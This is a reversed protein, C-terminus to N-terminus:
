SLVAVLHAILLALTIASAAVHLPLCARLVGLLVSQARLSRLEAVTLLLQELGDLRAGGRGQLMRHVKSRLREREADLSRGSALLAITGLPARLYPALMAEFIRRLLQSRGSAARYLQQELRRRAPALEEPLLAQRELRSLRRPLTRYAASTLGGLGASLVLSWLLAGGSGAGFLTGGHSLASALCLVGLAEHIQRQTRLPLRAATGRARRWAHIRPRLHKAIPYGLLLLLWVTTLVGLALGAGRWPHWREAAHMGMGLASLSMAGAVLLSRTTARTGSGDISGEPAAVILRRQQGSPSPKPDLRM